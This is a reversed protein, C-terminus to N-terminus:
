GRRTLRRLVEALLQKNTAYSLNKQQIQCAHLDTTIKALDEHLGTITDDLTKKDETLGQITGLDATHQDTLIKNTDKLTLNEKTLIDITKQKGEVTSELDITRQLQQQYLNWYKDRVARLEDILTQQNQAVKPRL